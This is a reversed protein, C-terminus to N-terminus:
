ITQSTFFLNLAVRAGNSKAINALNINPRRSKARLKETAAKIAADGGVADSFTKLEKEGWQALEEDTMNEMQKVAAFHDEMLAAANKGPMGCDALMGVIDKDYAEYTAADSLRYGMERRAADYAPSSAPATKDTMKGPKASTIQLDLQLLKATADPDGALVKSRFESNSTLAEKRQEHYDRTGVQLPAMQHAALSRNAQEPDLGGVVLRAVHERAIDESIGDRLCAVPDISGPNSM